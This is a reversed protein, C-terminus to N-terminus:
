NRKKIEDRVRAAFEYNEDNISLDLSNNLESITMDSLTKVKSKKDVINDVNVEDFLIGADRM